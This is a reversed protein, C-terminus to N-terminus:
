SISSKNFKAKDSNPSARAAPLLEPTPPFGVKAQLHHLIKEIVAQDEISAILKAECTCKECTSVEINFVRKLRQAWRMARHRLQPTNSDSEHPKSGKGRKAPTVDVRHKSNARIRRAHHWRQLTNQASDSRRVWAGAVSTFGNVDYRINGSPMMPLRKESVAPRSINRCLRELKQRDWAQAAVGAHISVFDDPVIKFLKLQGSPSSARLLASEKAM